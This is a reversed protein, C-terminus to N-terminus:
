LSVSPQTSGMQGQGLSKLHQGHQVLAEWFTPTTHYPLGFEKATDEVIKSIKKYHIHCITPFLHHEVQFNLGGVYWSFLHSKPAFNATTLMQHVAFVHDLKGEEDPLVYSTDTTVHAPQFIIALIFGAIYHMVMFGGLILYWPLDTLLFPLGFIYSLYVFKTVLLITFEKAFSGKVQQILGNKRYRMLRGYDKFFVWVFTMLGYLFWAYWHQYKHIKKVPADPTLRLVGRSAIDEDVEHVNTFTHHLVNHQVKWNFSSAGLMNLSYALLENVWKKSSYAQHCADHMVSLGIGALGIGMLLYLGLVGLPHTTVGALIMIFPSFYLSFMVVTKFKMAFNAHKSIGNEQFFANVRKNLTTQFERGRASFRIQHYVHM